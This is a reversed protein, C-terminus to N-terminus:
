KPLFAETYLKSMDPVKDTNKLMVLSEGVAALDDKQFYGNASFFHPM